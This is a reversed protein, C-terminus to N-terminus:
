TTPRTSSRRAPPRTQPPVYANPPYPSSLSSLSSLSSPSSAPSTRTLHPPSIKLKNFGVFVGDEGKHKHKQTHTSIIRGSEVSARQSSLPLRSPTPYLKSTDLAQTRAQPPKIQARPSRPNTRLATFTQTLTLRYSIIILSLLLLCYYSVIILSLLLLYHSLSYRTDDTTLDITIAANTRSAGGSAEEHAKKWENVLSAPYSVITNSRANFKSPKVPGPLVSKLKSPLKEYEFAPLGVIDMLKAKQMEILLQVTDNHFNSSVLTHLSSCDMSIDLRKNDDSRQHDRKLMYIDNDTATSGLNCTVANTTANVKVMVWKANPFKALRTRVAAEDADPRELIDQPQQCATSTLIMSVGDSDKYYVLYKTTKTASPEVAAPEVAAPEVAAQPPPIPDFEDGLRPMQGGSESAIAAAAEAMQLKKKRNIEAILRNLTAKTIERNIYKERAHAIEMPTWCGKSIFENSNVHIRKEEM